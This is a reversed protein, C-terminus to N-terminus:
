DYFFLFKAWDPPEVGAEIMKPENIKRLEDLFIKNGERSMVEPFAIYSGGPALESLVKKVESRMEGITAMPNDLVKDAKGGSCFTIQKGYKKKLLTTNNIYEVPQVADIGIEIFDEFIPVNYGDSHQIYYLNRRHAADVLKKLQPKIIQRWVDPPLFMNSGMGYDDFVMVADAKYYKVIKDFIKIRYDIFAELFEKVYYPETLFAILANEMGMLAEIRELLGYSMMMVSFRNNRDWKATDKLSAEKWNYNEVEPIIVIDKWRRIDNLIYSGPTVISAGAEQLYTFHVGWADFGNKTGRYLEDLATQETFDIDTYINPIWSTEKHNLAEILNDRFRM